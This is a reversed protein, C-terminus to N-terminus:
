ESVEQDGGDNNDAPAVSSPLQPARARARARAVKGLASWVEDFESEDLAAIDEESVGFLLSSRGLHPTIPHAENREIARGVRATQNTSRGATPRRATSGQMKRERPADLVPISAERAIGLFLMVMRKHQSRPEYLRFADAIKVQSDEAPDVRAFDEAYAERVAGELLRRYEEDPSQALAVLLDTPRGDPHTFGFFRLAEKVRGFAADPVEALRLFDDDITEPLNRSRARQLVAVINSPAAYPRRKPELTVDMLYWSRHM